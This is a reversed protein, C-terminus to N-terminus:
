KKKLKTYIILITILNVKVSDVGTNMQNTLMQEGMLNKCLPVNYNPM